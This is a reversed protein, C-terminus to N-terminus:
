KQNQTFWNQLVLARKTTQEAKPHNNRDVPEDAHEVSWGPWERFAHYTWDWGYEEFITILDSIYQDAGPAWRVASFEGVFIHTNYSKQFERVPELYRRLSEKDVMVGDIIGPYRILNEQGKEGWSNGVGQHTYGGPMYMHVQYIINPVDVPELWKYPGPSDWHDVEISIATVPDIERIAKAALVQICLWDALGPPSPKNQVPENILDYAWLAPHGKFRAAIKQWVKVFHDQYKKDLLMTMTGDPERGGPPTHLDLMVKIGHREGADLAQQADDLKGDLWSDFDALDRDLGTKGWNRGMQWRIVNVNWKALDAFDQERFKSPSMVGRLRPVNHGKYAPPPNVLPAPRVPKVKIAVLQIHSLWATGSSGQMGLVLAGQEADDPIPVRCNLQRWDFTGHVNRENLWIDGVVSKIHMMCKVGLYSSKPKTVDQSKAQCILALQMGRWPRLDLPISVANMGAQKEPSVSIRLSPKGDPGEQIVSLEPIKSVKNLFAPDTMDLTFVVDGPKVPQTDSAHALAPSIM